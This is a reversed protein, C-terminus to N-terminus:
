DFNLEKKVEENTKVDGNEIDELGEKIEEVEEKTLPEEEVEEVTEEVVAKPPDVKLEPLPKSYNRKRYRDKARTVM